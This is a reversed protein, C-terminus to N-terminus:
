SGSFLLGGSGSLTVNGYKKWKGYKPFATKNSPQTVTRAKLVVKVAGRLLAVTKLAKRTKGQDNDGGGTNFIVRKGVPGEETGNGVSGADGM